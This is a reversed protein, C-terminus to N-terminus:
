EDLKVECLADLEKKLFKATEIKVKEQGPSYYQKVKWTMVNKAGRGIEISCQHSRELELVKLQREEEDM